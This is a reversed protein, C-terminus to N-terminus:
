SLLSLLPGLAAEHEDTWSVVRTVPAPSFVVRAADVAAKKGEQSQRQGEEEEEGNDKNHATLLQKNPLSENVFASKLRLNGDRM